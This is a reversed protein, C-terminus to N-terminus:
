LIEWKRAIIAFIHGLLQAAAIHRLFDSIRVSFETMSTEQSQGKIGSEREYRFSIQAEKMESEMVFIKCGYRRERANVFGISEVFSSVEAQSTIM